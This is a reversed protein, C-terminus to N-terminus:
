EKLAETDMRILEIGGFAAAFESYASWYSGFIRSCGALCLCDVLGAKMGEVSDRGGTVEQCLIRGPFEAVLESKVGADDTALFFKVEPDEAIAQNMEKIFLSLPSRKIATVHDTRRVHVGILHEKKTGRLIKGVKEAYEDAFDLRSQDVSGQNFQITHFARVYVDTNGQLVQEKLAQYTAEFFGEAAASDDWSSPTYDFAMKGAAYKRQMKSERHVLRNYLRIWNKCLIKQLGSRTVPCPQPSTKFNVISFKGDWRVGKLVENGDIYCDATIPWLVLLEKKDSGSKEILDIADSIAWLRSTLGTSVALIM